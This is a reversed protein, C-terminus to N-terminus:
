PKTQKIKRKIYGQRSVEIEAGLHPFHKKFHECFRNVNEAAADLMEPVQKVIDWRNITIWYNVTVESISLKMAIQGPTLGEVIYLHASKYEKAKLMDPRLENWRGADRWRAISQEAVGLRSRIEKASLGDKIYLVAAQHRLDAYYAKTKIINNAESM